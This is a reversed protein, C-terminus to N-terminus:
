FVRAVVVLSVAWVVLFGKPRAKIQDAISELPAALVDRVQKFTM